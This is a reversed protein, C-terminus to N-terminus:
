DAVNINIIHATIEGSRVAFLPAFEALTSDMFRRFYNGNGNDKELYKILQKVAVRHMNQVLASLRKQKAIM